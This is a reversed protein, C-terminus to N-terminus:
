VEMAAEVANGRELGKARTEAERWGKREKEERSAHCDQGDTMMTERTRGSLYVHSGVEQEVGDM